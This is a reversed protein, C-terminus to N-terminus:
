SIDTAMNRTSCRLPISPISIAARKSAYGYNTFHYQKQPIEAPLDLVMSWRSKTTKYKEAM